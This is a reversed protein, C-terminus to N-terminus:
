DFIIAITIEPQHHLRLLKSGGQPAASAKLLLSNPVKAFRGLIPSGMTAHTVGNNVGWLTVWSCIVEGM